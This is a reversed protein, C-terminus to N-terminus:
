TKDNKKSYIDKVIPNWVNELERKKSEYFSKDESTDNQIIYIIENCMNEIKIKIEPLCVQNFDPHTVADKVNYIYNELDNKIDIVQKYKNDAEEHQRAEEILKRIEDESFRGKSNTIVL